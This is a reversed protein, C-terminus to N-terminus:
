KKIRKARDTKELAAAARKAQTEETRKVRAEAKKGAEVEKIVKNNKDEIKKSEERDLRQQLAFEGRKETQTTLEGNHDPHDQFGVLRARAATVMDEDIDFAFANHGMMLAAHSFSATGCGVDLIWSTSPTRAAAGTNPCFRPAEATEAPPDSLPDVNMHCEMIRMCLALPKQYPCM